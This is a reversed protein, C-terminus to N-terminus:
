GSGEISNSDNRNTTKNGNLLEGISEFLQQLGIVGLLMAVGAWFLNGILSGITWTYFIITFVVASLAISFLGKIM